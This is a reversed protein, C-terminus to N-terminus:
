AAAHVPSDLRKTVKGGLVNDYEARKPQSGLVGMAGNVRTFAREMRLLTAPPIVASIAYAPFLRAVAQLYSDRIEELSATRDVSLIQYYTTARDIADLLRDLELYYSSIQEVSM